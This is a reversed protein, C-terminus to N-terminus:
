AAADTAIPVVRGLSPRVGTGTRMEPVFRQIVRVVEAGSTGSARVGGLERVMQEINPLSLTEGTWAGIGSIGTAILREADYCLEEHLKEGPRAGTVVITEAPDLGHARVFARALGHISVPEGMDLVFVMAPDDDGVPLSASQIVLAAAEPITMFYRTMRPDTVTVPRGAALQSSWIPLVSSASGLVNGFRVMSFRTRPARPQLGQIYREALRKTSGMVSTPNVAKDSSILVFRGVGHAASADAVSKTGFLNNTVAHAPHDEMLPVHKHAAAHFVVDPRLDAFLRDTAEADVVDHLVARRSLGPCRERLERDIEFLANESREVLLLEAPEYASAIRALESGISGGAGTILVRKGKLVGAVRQHDMPRPERGILKAVDSIPSAVPLPSAPEDRLLDEIAPVFRARLGAASVAEVIRRREAEMSAPVCAIVLSVDHWRALEALEGLGGLEPVGPESDHTRAADAGILVCGCVWVPSEAFALQCRLSAVGQPTGILIAATTSM